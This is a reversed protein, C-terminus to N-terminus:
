MQRQKHRPDTRCYVFWRGRRKVLYCGKCRKRLVAKTKFGLAPPLGLARPAPLPAAVAPGPGPPQPLRLLPGAAAALRRLLAAAM